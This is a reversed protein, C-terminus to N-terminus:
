RYIERDIMTEGERREREMKEGRGRKDVKHKKKQPVDEGEM